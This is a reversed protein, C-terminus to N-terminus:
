RNKSIARSAMSESQKAESSIDNTIATGFEVIKKNLHMNIRAIPCEGAHMDRDDEFIKLNATQFKFPNVSSM